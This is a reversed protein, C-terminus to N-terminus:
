LLNSAATVFAIRKRVESLDTDNLTFCRNNFHDIDITFIQDCKIITDNDLEPYNKPEILHHFPQKLRGKDNNWHINMQFSTMPVCSAYKVGHLALIRSNSVIVVYHPSKMTYRSGSTHPTLDIYHVEGSHLHPTCDM